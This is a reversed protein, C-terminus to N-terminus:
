SWATTTFIVPVGQDRAVGLLRATAAVAGSLDSGLGCSPDTFGGSAPTEVPRRFAAARGLSRGGAVSAGTPGSSDTASASGGVGSTWVPVGESSSASASSM